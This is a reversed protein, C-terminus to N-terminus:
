QGSAQLLADVDHVHAAAAPTGEVEHGALERIAAKYSVVERLFGYSPGAAFGGLLAGLVDAELDPVGGGYVFLLAVVEDRGEVRDVILCSGRGHQSAYGRSEFLVADVQHLVDRARAMEVVVHVM